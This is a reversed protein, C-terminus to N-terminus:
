SDSYSEGNLITLSSYRNYWRCRGEDDLGELLWGPVPLLLLIDLM